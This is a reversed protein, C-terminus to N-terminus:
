GKTFEQGLRKKFQEVFSVTTLTDRNDISIGLQECQDEIIKCGKEFERFYNQQNNLVNIIKNCYTEMKRRNDLKPMEGGATLYRMAMLLYYKCKKYKPDLKNRNRQNFLNELRYYAFASTYYSIPSHNVGFIKSGIERSLDGYSRSVRHPQDLFMAAFTKIQDPITIVRNKPVDARDHYQKSRREYYLNEGAHSSEFSNYCQELEKQFESLAALEEKKVPTQHNTAKIISNIVDDKDTVIIKVPIQLNDIGTLNRCNYLVHSTQCGNVLPKQYNQGYLYGIRVLVLYVKQALRFNYMPSLPISTSLIVIVYIVVRHHNMFIFDYLYLM